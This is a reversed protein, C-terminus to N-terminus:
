GSQSFPDPQGLKDVLGANYVLGAADSVHAIAMSKRASSAYQFM